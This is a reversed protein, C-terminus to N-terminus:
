IISQLEKQAQQYFCGLSNLQKRILLLYSMIQILNLNQIISYDMNLLAEKRRCYLFLSSILFLDQFSYTRYLWSAKSSIRKDEL